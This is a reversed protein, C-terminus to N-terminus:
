DEGDYEHASLQRLTKWEPLDFASPLARWMGTMAARHTVILDRTCSACPLDVLSQKPEGFPDLWGEVVAKRYIAARVRNCLADNGCRTAKPSLFHEYPWSLARQSLRQKGRVVARKDDPSLEVHVGDFTVGDFIDELANHCCLLLAGPLLMPVNTERLLNVVYIRRAPCYQPTFHARDTMMAYDDFSLPYGKCLASIARTRLEAVEYKTAIRLISAVVTVDTLNEINTHSHPNAYSTLM